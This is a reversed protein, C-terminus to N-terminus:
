KHPNTWSVKGCKKCTWKPRLGTHEAVADDFVVWEEYSKSWDHQCLEQLNQKDM